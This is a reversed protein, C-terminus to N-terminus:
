LHEILREYPAFTQQLCSPLIRKQLDITAEMALSRMNLFPSHISRYSEQWKGWPYSLKVNIDSQAWLFIYKLFIKRQVMKKLPVFPCTAAEGVDAPRGAFQLFGLRSLDSVLPVEGLLLLRSLVAKVSPGPKSRSFLQSSKPHYAFIHSVM